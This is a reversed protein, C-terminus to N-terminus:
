ETPTPPTETGETEKIKDTAHVWGMFLDYFVALVVPGIFLGVLGYSVMGGLVGVLIVLMPTDLGQAMMIPRLINDVVMIPVMILTFLLALAPSMAFWAWIILPILVPGPGVQVIALVLCILALVGAAKIGFLVMVIGALLSQIIAVGVVGRSVNRVTAGALDILTGGRPAFVRNAFRRVEVALAPGPRFLLGMILVSASMILLALGIGAVKGLVVGGASLLHPGYQSLAAGINSTAQTWAAHLSPGIVPWELLRAPAEPMQADGSKIFNVLATIGEIMSSVLIAVPGLTIVLGVLTLLVAAVTERGGLKESLWVYAPYVAVTLIVAWIILGAMPAIMSLAAWIFLAVFGMRIALDLVKSDLNEQM